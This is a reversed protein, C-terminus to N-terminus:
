KKGPRLFIDDKITFENVNEELNIDEKNCKIYITDNIGSTNLLISNNELQYQNTYYYYVYEEEEDHYKFENPSIPRETNLKIPETLNQYIDFPQLEYCFNISSGEAFNYIGSIPFPNNVNELTLNINYVSPTPVPDPQRPYPIYPIVKFRFINNKLIYYNQPLFLTIINNNYDFQMNQSYLQITKLPTEDFIKICDSIFPHIRIISNPAVKTIHNPFRFIPNIFELEEDIYITEPDPPNILGQAEFYSRYVPILENSIILPNPDKEPHIYKRRKSM